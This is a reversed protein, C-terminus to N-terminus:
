AILDAIYKDKETWLAPCIDYEKLAGIADNSVKKDTNQIFTYFKADKSRMDKTDSWAFILSRVATLNLTNVVKILRESVNKSGAIVFDYHTALKSKGTISINSVYRIDHDDFFNQVDDLFISQINSQSLHFMDSIKVMCQTLMHKKLALNELTCRVILENNDTKTIGHASIISGFIDRRRKTSFTDFGSLQLDNLTAGDDTIYFSNDSERIIYIEIQDNNRDLFPFTIRYTNKDVEFQDINEKLWDIYLNCFDISNTNLIDGGTQM